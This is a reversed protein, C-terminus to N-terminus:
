AQEEVLEKEPEANEGQKQRLEHSFRLEEMRANHQQRMHDIRKGDIRRARTLFVEGEELANWARDEGPTFRAFKVMDAENLVKRTQEVLDQDVARRNLEYLIERSTLELAPIRYLREFYYRIADGLNIYFQKYDEKEEFTFSKLEGLRDSLQKLPDVFPEPQFESKKKPEPQEERQMYWRYAYWGGIGLLILAALYPWLARAFEFIPKLPRFEEQESQLVSSFYVPVPNTYFTTTDTGQVLSVPLADIRSDETGFFQIRFALSDKFDNVRFRQRSRIEFAEGFHTSDPFIIGDNPGNRRFTISYTFQDGASLSDIAAYERLEQGNVEGGAYVLLLMFGLWFTGTHIIKKLM